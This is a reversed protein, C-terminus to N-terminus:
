HRSTSKLSTLATSLDILYVRNDNGLINQVRIDGYAISAQHLGKLSNRIQNAIESNIQVQSLVKGDVREFSIGRVKEDCANPPRDWLFPQINFKTVVYIEVETPVSIWGYCCPTFKGNNYQDILSGNARCEGLFNDYHARRAM